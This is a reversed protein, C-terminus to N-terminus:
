LYRREAECELRAIEAECWAQAAPTDSFGGREYRLAPNSANVVYAHWTIRNELRIVIARWSGHAATWQGAQNFTWDM